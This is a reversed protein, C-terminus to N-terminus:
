EKNLSQLLLRMEDKIEKAATTPVKEATELIEAAWRRANANEGAEEYLKALLYKPYLRLPQMYVATKYAKEAQQVDGTAKYTNGLLVFSNPNSSQRCSVSLAEIAESYEGVLFHASGCYFYFVGNNALLDEAKRYTTIAAHPNNQVIVQQQGKQLLQLGYANRIGKYAITATLIVLSLFFAFHLFHNKFFLQKGRKRFVVVLCFVLYLAIPLVKFPYSCLLLVAIAVISAQAGLEVTSLNKWGGAIATIFLIGLLISAIIGQELATEFFENYATTVYDAVYREKETGGTEEFYSAQWKGYQAEFYGIGNGVLQNKHPTQTTVKWVLLRGFASNEKFKYLFFGGAIILIAIFPMVAFKVRKTTLFRSFSAAYKYLLVSSCGIACAIWAGRSQTVLLLYLSLILFTLLVYYINEYKKRKKYALLLSLLLPSIAALYGAYAGPNGLSGGISFLQESNNLLGISQAIGWLVEIAVTFIVLWSIHKAYQRNHQLQLSFLFFLLWLMATTYLRYAGFSNGQWLYQTVINIVLFSIIGFAINLRIRTHTTTILSVAALLFVAAYFVFLTEPLRNNIGIHLSIFLAFTIIKLFRLKM